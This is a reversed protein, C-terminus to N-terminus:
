NMSDKIMDDNIRALTKIVEDKEEQIDKYREGWDKFIPNVQYGIFHKIMILNKNMEQMLYLMQKTQIENM